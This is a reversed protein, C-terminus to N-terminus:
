QLNCIEILNYRNLKKYLGARSLGLQKATEKKNGGTKRICEMILDKEITEVVDKLYSNELSYKKIKNKIIKEPLHKPMIFLDADLLNIAREIVNELQRINGPWSYSKLYDIAESSIGESYVGYKKSIKKRLENSLEEIDEIRERLSPLRLHMVDLRYYLDERFKGDTILGELSKNTSAIVRVDVKIVDNGGVRVLEKEQIVRLLKVQMNMPMDGIEDLLITGGNAHEFKGKKGSRKAGTFAGEEYGFMESEFLEAPIAGCNIKVFPKLCRGSANHISHAFLEKGTGSEGTILVNSDIKAVRRAMKMVELSRDSHGIINNFTYIAKGDSSLENKYYEVEKELNWLKNSLIKFNSLDKFMVKGIAGVVKGDEKIPVRMSIMKHGNAEQLEGFQKEGTKAVIHLKTNEIVQTVHKGEPNECNILEKYANSMMTIIGNKDVVVVCENVTNIITNLINESANDKYQLNGLLNNEPNKSFIELAGIIEGNQTIAKHTVIFEGHEKNLKLEGNEIVSLLESFPFVNLIYKGISNEASVRLMKEAANNIIKIIGKKDIVIVGENINCIVENYYDNIKYM